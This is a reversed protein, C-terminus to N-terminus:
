NANLGLPARTHLREKWTNERTIVEEAPLDPALRELITFRFRTPDRGKLDRNGGHGGSAYARWRGLINERGYASGVYAMRDSEDFILYIGRWEALRARWTKPMVALEAYSLDIARWDPPPKEFASDENVALVPFQGRDVWRFWSREPPPYGIILRGCWDPYFNLLKLDYQRVPGYKEVEQDTLGVYGLGALEQNEPIAWFANMDLTRHAGVEYLGIFHARGPTLGICVVAYKAYQLGAVRNGPVSQYVEFLDRRETIIWPMAQALPDEPRHRLLLIEQKADPDIGNLRLLDKLDM